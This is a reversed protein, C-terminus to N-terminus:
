EQAGLEAIRARWLAALGQDMASGKDILGDLAHLAAELASVLEDHSNCARVIFEANADNVDVGWADHGWASLVKPSGMAVSRLNPGYDSWAANEIKEWEWPTPTHESM